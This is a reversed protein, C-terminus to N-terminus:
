KGGGTKVKVARWVSKDKASRPECLPAWFITGPKSLAVEIETENGTECGCCSEVFAYRKMGAIRMAEALTHAAVISRTQQSYNAARPCEGRSERWGYVKLTKAM